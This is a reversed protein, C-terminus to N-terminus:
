QENTPVTVGQAQWGKRAMCNATLGKPRRMAPLTPSVDGGLTHATTDMLVVARNVSTLCTSPKLAEEFRAHSDFNRQILSCGVLSNVLIKRVVKLFIFL